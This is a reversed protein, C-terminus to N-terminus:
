EEQQTGQPQRLAQQFLIPPKKLKLAEMLKQLDQTIYVGLVTSVIITLANLIDLQGLGEVDIIPIVQAILVLGGIALYICAGKFVGQFFTHKDFELKTSAIASGLLINVLLAIPLAMM